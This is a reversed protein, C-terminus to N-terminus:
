NLLNELLTEDIELVKLSQNQIELVKLSQDKM